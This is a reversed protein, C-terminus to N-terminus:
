VSQGRDANDDVAIMCGAAMYQGFTVISIESEGDGDSGYKNRL